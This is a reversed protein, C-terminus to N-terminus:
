TKIAKRFKNNSNVFAQQQVEEKQNGSFKSHFVIDWNLDKLALM